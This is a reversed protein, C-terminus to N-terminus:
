VRAEVMGNQVALIKEEFTIGNGHHSISLKTNVSDGSFVHNDLTRNSDKKM